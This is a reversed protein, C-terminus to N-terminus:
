FCLLFFWKLNQNAFQNLYAFSYVVLYRFCKEPSIAQWMEFV